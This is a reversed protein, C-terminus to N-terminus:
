VINKTNKWNYISKFMKEYSEADACGHIANYKFELKKLLIDLQIDQRKLFYILARKFRASHIFVQEGMLLQTIKEYSFKFQHTLKELMELDAGTPFIFLGDLFPNGFKTGSQSFNPVMHLFEALELDHKKCYDRAQIYNKNGASIHSELFDNRMWKKQYANLRQVSGLSSDRMVMYYIELNGDEAVKLRHQGDIVRMQEDVLIPRYPLLNEKQISARLKLYSPEHIPRNGPFKKFMKYDRTSKIENM